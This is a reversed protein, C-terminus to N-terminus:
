SRAIWLWAQERFEKIDVDVAQFDAAPLGPYGPRIVYSHLHDSLLIAVDADPHRFLAERLPTSDLMRSIGIVMPGTFGAAGPGVIGVGVAMRLRIRDDNRSNDEALCSVTSLVLDPLATTPDIDSPLIVIGGDGSWQNGVEDWGVQCCELLCGVLRHLRDQISEQASAPRSSYGVVDVAFGMQLKKRALGTSGAPSATVATSGSSATSRPSTLAERQGPIVPAALGGPVTELRRIAALVQECAALEVDTYALFFVSTIHTGPNTTFYDVAAGILSSVTPRIEGGGQGTGLLPFLITEAPPQGAIRDVETMVSTVCRGIERIQRFGSGPEGQVTAVHVVYRVGNRRLEGAGTIIATGPPVPRRGAVKRDLEEAICDHIVQGTEDRVAGEYRIISSVSFEDFRAMQMQTNESNVWVDACHVRRLDGCVIGVYRDQRNGDPGTRDQGTGAVRYVRIEGSDLARPRQGPPMAWAPPSATQRASLTMVAWVLLGFAAASLLILYPTAIM